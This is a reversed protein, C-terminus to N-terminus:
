RGTPCRSERRDLGAPGWSIGKSRLGFFSQPDDSKVLQRLGGSSSVTEDIM